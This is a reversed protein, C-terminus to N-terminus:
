KGPCNFHKSADDLVLIWDNGYGTTPTIFTIKDKKRFTKIKKAQSNKPNYWWARIRKGNIYHMNVTIMQGFPIYIMAYSRDENHFSVIFRDPETPPNDIMDLVPIRDINPRSEMLKKLYGAQEAGPDNMSEHWYKLTYAVNKKGAYYFQWVSHHGYTVGAAGAFVSRYLQKRVDYDTFYGRDPEWNVPHAEYNPESDIIPKPPNHSFDRWIWEWVPFDHIRHGSQMMNFDITNENTWFQSSSSEGAPHYTSLQKAGGDRIGKLMNDYIPRWDATDNFAPRDGGIVWIINKYDRYKEGLIRGYTYANKKNFIIKENNEWLPAVSHGWTPLLAIHINREYAKGITWSVLEFYDENIKEPNLDIFPFQGYRNAREAVIVCQIINFGKNQRNDLYNVIEEKTLSNFLNWGTDGLWFFPKGDPTRFYHGSSSIRIQSYGSLIHIISLFLLINKKM